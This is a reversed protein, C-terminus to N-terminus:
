KLCISAYPHKRFYPYWHDDNKIDSNGNYVMWTSSGGHGYPRIAMSVGWIGMILDPAWQILSYIVFESYGNPKLSSPTQNIEVINANGELILKIQAWFNYSISRSLGLRPYLSTPNPPLVLIMTKRLLKMQFM